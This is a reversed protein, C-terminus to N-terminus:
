GRNGLRSRLTEVERRLKEIERKCEDRDVRIKAAEDIYPRLQSRMNDVAEQSKQYLDCFEMAALVSAVAVSVKASSSLIEDIKDDVLGAIKLIYGREEDTVITCDMGGIKINMTKESDM